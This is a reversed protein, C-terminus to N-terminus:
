VIRSVEIEGFMEGQAVVVDRQKILELLALFSVIVETKNQASALIHNFSVKIKNIIM